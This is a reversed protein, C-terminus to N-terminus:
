DSNRYDASQHEAMRATPHEFPSLHHDSLLRSALELDKVPDPESGDHNNYSVRACRASSIMFLDKFLELQDDPNTLNSDDVYPLHWVRLVPTSTEIALKIKTALDRIEPQAKDSIRLSFFNDWETSTVITNTYQYPELIRNVVEKHVGLELLRSASKSALKAAEKWSEICYKLDDGTILEGGQMGPINKRFELPIAPDSGVQEIIKSTPIARNSSSSRSFVRHTNFEPLIYRHYRLQLTTIRKGNPSISDCVVKVEIM